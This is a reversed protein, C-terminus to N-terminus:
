FTIELDSIAGAWSPPVYQYPDDEKENSTAIVDTSNLITIEIKPDIYKKM